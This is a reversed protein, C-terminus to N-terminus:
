PAVPIFAACSSTSSPTRSFVAGVESFITQLEEFSEFIQERTLAHQQCTRDLKALVEKVLALCPVKNNWSAEAILIKKWDASEVSRYAQLLRQLQTRLPPNGLLYHVHQQQHSLSRLYDSAAYSPSTSLDVQLFKEVVFRFLNLSSAYLSHPPRVMSNLGASHFLSLIKQKEFNLRVAYLSAANREHAIALARLSEIIQRASTRGVETAELLNWRGRTIGKLSYVLDDLAAKAFPHDNISSSIGSLRKLAAHLDGILPVESPVPARSAPFNMVSPIPLGPPPRILLPIGHFSRVDLPPRSLGRLLDNAKSNGAKALMYAIKWADLLIREKQSEVLGGTKIAKNIGEMGRCVAEAATLHIDVDMKPDPGADLHLNFRPDFDQSLRHKLRAWEEEDVDELCRKLSSLSIYIADDHRISYLSFNSLLDHHFHAFNPQNSDPLSTRQLEKIPHEETSIRHSNGTNRSTM